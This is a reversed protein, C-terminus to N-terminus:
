VGWMAFGKEKGKKLSEPCFLLLKLQTVRYPMQM